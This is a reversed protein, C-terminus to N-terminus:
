LTKLDKGLSLYALLAGPWAFWHRSVVACSVPDYAEPLAGDWQAACHLHAWVRAERGPDQLLRALLLEQLDGLPWPAPTHVSGLRGDYAGGRNDDSFAFDLTARWLPDDSAFLGWLPALVLPTDNADHYFHHQGQGDAAYSLLRRGGHEAVFHALIDERVAAALKNFDGPLGLEHLRGWVRWMLIHSSLHYPYAIPDDGPTEDTPLLSLGEARMALLTEVLPGVHPALRELTARDGTMLVYDALELLPFLQQDLQFASDKIRGNALYCRGWLGDPREAMEFLWILHGRVLDAMQPQWHLLALMVYYADRNWSLPLLMHDTLVCIGDGDPVALSLGYVLGRRALPDVPGAQWLQGWHMLQQELAAHLDQAALDRARQAAMEADPGFAYCLVVIGARGELDVMVAGEIEQRAPEGAPLGAAAVAWGLAPNELTLLGEHLRLRSEVAVAPLPGGETLQTYACRQLAIRGQWRPTVNEFECIQVAGGGHAFSTITAQGGRVFSLRVQPVADELLCAERAVIEDAFHPGFGELAALGARYARVAAPNYREGETFPPATTLSVYGHEPHPANLAILRGSIDVSGTIGDGGFDLPKYGEAPNLVTKHHPM